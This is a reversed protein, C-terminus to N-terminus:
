PPLPPARGGARSLMRPLRTPRAMTDLVLQGVQAAHRLVGIHWKAGNRAVGRTLPALLWSLSRNLHAATPHSCQRLPAPHIKQTLPAGRSVLLCAAAAPVALTCVSPQVRAHFCGAARPQCDRPSLLVHRRRLPRASHLPSLRPHLDQSEATPVPHHDPALGQHVFLSPTM